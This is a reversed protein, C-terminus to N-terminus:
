PYVKILGCRSRVCEIPSARVDRCEIGVDQQVSHERNKRPDSREDQQEIGDYCRKSQLHKCTVECLTHKSSVVM